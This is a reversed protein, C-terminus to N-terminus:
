GFRSRFSIRALVTGTAAQVLWAAGVGYLIGLLGYRAGIVAAIGAVVLSIWTSVSIVALMRASGCATTVTTAFGSWVKIIGVVITAIILAPEYDFKGQLLTHFVFPSVILIAICSLASVGAATLTERKLVSAAAAADKVSRLRPLLTFSNGMQIMRFPSGAVAALVAYTGLMPLTGVKPIAFREFQMLLQVGVGVGLAALGERLALSRDLPVRGENVGAHAVWWGAVSTGLFSLTLIGVVFAADATSLLLCLAAAFLLVYNSVQSLAMAARLRHDGQFLSVCVRNTSSGIVMVFLLVGILPSLGYYQLAILAAVLGVAAATSLAYAALAADVRPRHRNAVVELGLPGATLGFQNLALVLAVIGFQDPAMLRALLINGLAFGAGGFAFGIASRLSESRLLRAIV